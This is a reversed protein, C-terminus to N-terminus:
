IHEIAGELSPTIFNNINPDQGAMIAKFDNQILRIKEPDQVHRTISEIIRAVAMRYNQENASPQRGTMEMYYKIATVDGRDVARLLGEMVRDLSTDLNDSLLDHLFNKFHTDKKWGNWRTVPIGLSRLKNPISRRDDLNGITVLAAIQENSLSAPKAKRSMGRNHFALKVTPHDFFETLNASRFASRFEEVPPFRKHKVYYAEAWNVMHLQETSMPQINSSSDGM